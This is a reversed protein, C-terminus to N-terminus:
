EARRESPRPRTTRLGSPERGWPGTADDPQAPDSISRRSVSSRARRGSASAEFVLSRFAKPDHFSPVSPSSWAALVADKQPNGPGGPREIRFVNFGWADGPKPPLAVGRSSPLPRFGSWPLFATATWGTTKGAADKRPHVRTEVGALNWDVHGVKDPWPSAMRLDCVVNAPSIELEYYDHGSRDPDIFIEVVEEEWLEDDRQTMTHWPYPDTADFRLYLGDDDWLARFVTEYPSPGWSIRAAQSWTDEGALLASRSVDTRAVRYDPPGAAAALPALLLPLVAVGAATSM